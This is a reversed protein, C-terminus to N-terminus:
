QHVICARTCRTHEATDSLAEELVQVTHLVPIRSGARDLASGIQMRCAPCGTVVASAKTSIINRAKEEAIGDSLRWHAIRMVGGFGCCRDANSMEVLEIGPITRLIDLAKGSLGQGRGLHCPDHWTVKTRVPRLLLGGIEHALFEHIDLVAPAKKGSLLKPYEKKFTLGCSACATVVADAKLAEIIGSNHEAHEAAAARDGLSLLPRGCCRLGDPVMVDYGLRRLVATASRGIDRQFGNIACGPFFVVRGKTGQGGSGTASSGRVGPGPGTGSVGHPEEHRHAYHLMVPWLWATARIAAPHKLVETIVADIIGPGSEAVAQEKAAQIIGTIPVGSPCSAECALCGTCTAMRDRYIRSATLQGDLVAKILAMRGRASMSERRERLFPPCVAACTGCKVCREIERRYPELLSM